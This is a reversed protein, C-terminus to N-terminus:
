EGGGGAAEFADDVEKLLEDYRRDFYFAELDLESLSSMEEHVKKVIEKHRVEEFTQLDATQIKTEKTM